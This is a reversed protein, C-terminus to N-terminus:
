PLFKNNNSMKLFLKIWVGTYCVSNKMIAAINRIFYLFQIFLVMRLFNVFDVWYLLVNGSVHFRLVWMFRWHSTWLIWYWHVTHKLISISFNSNFNYWILKCIYVFLLKTIEFTIMWNGNWIKIRWRIKFPRWSSQEDGFYVSRSNNWKKRFSDFDLVWYIM